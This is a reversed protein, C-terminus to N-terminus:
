WYMLFRSQKADRHDGRFSHGYEHPQHEIPLCRRQPNLNPAEVRLQPFNRDDGPHIGAIGSEECEFERGFLAHKFTEMVDSPDIGLQERAILLAARKLSIYETDLTSIFAPM